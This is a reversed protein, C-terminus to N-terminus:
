KGKKKVLARFAAWVNGSLFISSYAGALIGVILPLAFNKISTVGLLYILGITFLTTITTNISRMVTSRIASDVKDEFSVSQPMQKVNERVRDFIIITANISYGLITLVAAIVTSGVPIQLLSYAFLMVFVDHALCVVAAVASSFEFRIAIYILMLIIAIVASVFASKKLGSSVEASVTDTSQWVADPYLEQIGASIEARYKSIQGEVDFSVNVTNDDKLSVSADSVVEALADNIATVDDESPVNESDQTYLSFIENGQASSVSEADPYLAKVAENVALTAADWKDADNEAVLKTRIVVTDRNDGVIRLSSFNDQGIIDTVMNKIAEEDQKEVTKGISYSIETGGVFEIDFNFGRIIFSCIGAILVVATIIFFIKRNKVFSFNKM